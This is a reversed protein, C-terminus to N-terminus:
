KGRGAPLNDFARRLLRRVADADMQTQVVVWVDKRVEAEGPGALEGRVLNDAITRAAAEDPCRLAASLHIVQEFRLWLGVAEVQTWVPAQKGLAPKLGFALWPARKEWEKTDAVLIAQANPDLCDRLLLAQIPPALHQIGSQPTLPVADLDSPELGLVLLTDTPCWLEAPVSGLTVPYLLKGSREIPRKASLAKRIVDLDYPHRTQVVLTLRPPFTHDKVKLGVAVQDIDEARLGTWKELNIPGNGSGPGLGFQRLFQRGASDDMTRTVHVMVAMDVDGPLYGVPEKRDRSRRDPVTKLAWFLGIAAMMAMVGLVVGAVAWNPWRRHPVAVAPSAPSALAVAVPAVGERPRYPFAEGCRPCPVRQGPAADAPVTVYANCYPCALPESIM